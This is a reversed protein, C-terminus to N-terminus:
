RRRGAEVLENVKSQVAGLFIPSMILGGIILNVYPIVLVICTAIALGVPADEPLGARKRQENLRVCLRHYSFFVWYYNYFPIFLFGIAKGASPDDPRVKPMRGHLLGLWIFTFIGLTVFHLLVAVGTSFSELTHGGAPGGGPRGSPSLFEGCHRCKIAQPAISEACFPCRRVLAERCHPCVQAGPAVAEACSPCREPLGPARAAPGAVAVAAPQAARPGPVNLVQGCAPCSCLKGALEDPAECTQSCKSCQLRIAM